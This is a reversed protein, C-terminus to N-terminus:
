AGTDTIEQEYWTLHAAPDSAFGASVLVDRWDRKANLIQVLMKQSNGGCNKIVAMQIREICQADRVLPLSNGCEGELLECAIAREREPFLKKVLREVKSSVMYATPHETARVTQVIAPSHEKATRDCRLM